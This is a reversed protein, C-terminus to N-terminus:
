WHSGWKVKGKPKADEPPTAGKPSERKEPAAPEDSDAAAAAPEPKSRETLMAAISAFGSEVDARLTAVADQANWAAETAGEASRAASEALAAAESSEERAVDAKVSAAGAAIAASESPQETM